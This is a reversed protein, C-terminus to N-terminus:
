ARPKERLGVASLVSITIIIATCILCLYCYAGIYLYERLIFFGNFLAGGIGMALLYKFHKASGSRYGLVAILAIIPYVFLAIMPFPIGFIESYPSDLVTTCSFTQNIDCFSMPRESALTNKLYYAKDTLYGANVFAVISLLIIALYKKMPKCFTITEMTPIKGANAFYKKLFGTRGLECFGNANPNNPLVNSWIGAAIGAKPEMKPKGM